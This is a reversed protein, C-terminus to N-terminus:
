AAIRNHRCGVDGRCGCLFCPDREAIRRAQAEEFAARGDVEHRRSELSAMSEGVRWRQWHM